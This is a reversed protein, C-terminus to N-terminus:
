ILSNIASYKDKSQLVIKEKEPCSTEYCVMLTDYCRETLRQLKKQLIILDKKLLPYVQIQHKTRNLAGYIQKFALELQWISWTDKVSTYCELNYEYVDNM